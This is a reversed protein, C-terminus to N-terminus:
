ASSGQGISTTKASVSGEEYSVKRASEKDTCNGVLMSPTNDSAYKHIEAKWQDINDFSERDIVSYIIM